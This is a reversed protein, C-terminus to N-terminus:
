PRLWLSVSVPRMTKAVVGKLEKHLTELDIQDRLRSACEDITRAADYRNRNFRHDIRRQVSHRVPQFLFAVILTAAAVLWSPTEIRFGLAAAPILMLAGFSGALIATVAAYSLTRRVLRDIDYLRYRLIAAGISLPIGLMLTAFFINWLMTGAADSWLHFVPLGSMMVVFAIAVAIGVFALYTLQQREVGRSRRFRLILGCISLGGIVVCATTGVIFLTRTVGELGATALPNTVNVGNDSWPGSEGHDELEDLDGFPPPPLGVTM